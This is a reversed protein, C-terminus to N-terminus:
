FTSQKHHTWLCVACCRRIGSNRIKIEQIRCPRCNIELIWWELNIAPRPSLLKMYSRMSCQMVSHFSVHMQEHILSKHKHFAPSTRLQALKTSNLKPPNFMMEVPFFISRKVASIKAIHVLIIYISWGTICTHQNNTNFAGKIKLIKCSPVYVCHM